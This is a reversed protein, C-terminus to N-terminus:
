WYKNTKKRREKARVLGYLKFLAMELRRSTDGSVTQM